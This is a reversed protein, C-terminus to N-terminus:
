TKRKEQEANRFIRRVRADHLGFYDGIDKMTHRSAGIRETSMM